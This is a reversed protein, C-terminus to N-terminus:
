LVWVILKLVWFFQEAPSFWDTELYDYKQPKTVSIPTLRMAFNYSWQAKPGYIKFSSIDCAYLCM